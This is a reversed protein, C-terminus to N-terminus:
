IRRDLLQTYQRAFQEFTGQKINQRIVKMLTNFFFLNHMVMLRLGLVEGSRLLHRLYARSFGESCVPCLCTEDVPLKDREYKQNNLNRIGQWTFLHGHRGNRAPIVCDFMDIGCGVCELINGPLGVGMLYRIKDPPMHEEVVSIIRLMEERSEGVALGGIAYGDMDLQALAKMNDVRIDEYCCGQNIGFLLQNPNITNETRNLENLKAKSRQNWRLTRNCSELVYERSPPPIAICEDLAMAITSGLNSQIEMSREPSLFIKRGDIHSSFETGQETIRRMKALSYIQFGGSDTLVPGQWHTFTKLGGLDGIVSDGPRLHLHYTNCLMIQCKAEELDLASLGGKIAAATAVNMFVPTEFSGHVTQAIGLRAHGQSSLVKFM